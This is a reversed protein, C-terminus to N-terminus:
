ATVAVALDSREKEQQQAIEIAKRFHAYTPLIPPVALLDTNEPEPNEKLYEDLWWWKVSAQNLRMELQCVSRYAHVFKNFLLKCRRVAEEETQGRAILGLGRFHAVFASDEEDLHTTYSISVAVRGEQSNSPM